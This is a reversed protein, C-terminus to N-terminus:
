LEDKSKIYPLIFKRIDDATRNGTYDQIYRGNKFLKITPFGSIQFQETVEPNETCDIMAFCKAFGESDLDKAVAMFDPKMKKCYGCWPAYFLVLVVNNRRIQDKFNHDSLELIPSDPRWEVNQPSPTTATKEPNSMFQIFDEATRGGNYIRTTKYYSFYRMTPYGKVEYASCVSSQTTCDVAAFEVKPDDKYTEAAMTFEPKTQKCHGCWPAYFIVLVHKKKKLFPKFTEETLHVVNSEEDSWPKEPPPPPPPEQPDRMFEIIKSGERVNVDFKQDGFSFYMVTPYGKVSYRSALTQEKTADVAALMGPIRAENKKCHGCWPAYFMILVSAEEKIVPDFSTTTLHVVESDTDSWEPEKVKVPPASPNLMFDVIAKKKNDGEYTYKMQGNVFYLLTPFGTINYHARVITNEPRNVDIAALVAQDKLDTAAEAYEPKLTKCFGCWPAYFMIMIPKVEKKIFKALTNADPIHVVDTASTDEEWPLDGTPDRMFNTMSSVTIKRDYNKNFDGDKYHKLVFPESPEIKLKKCMKKADGSCDVTVMTGEGKINDAVERFVKLVNQSQKNSTIFVFWFTRRRELYNKNTKATCQLIHYTFTFYLLYFVPITYNM